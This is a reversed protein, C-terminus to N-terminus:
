FAPLDPNSAAVVAQGEIEILWGPRCVPATVIEIPANGFRARMERQVFAQDAPDRVYVIFVCMDGLTAGAQQLLAAINELTRDLQRAVDGAYLIEGRQDISDLGPIRTVDVLCEVSHKGEQLEIVLDTGGAIIQAKGGYRALIQLTEEISAPTEYAQWM